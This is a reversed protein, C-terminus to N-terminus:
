NGFILGTLMSTISTMMEEVYPKIMNTININITKEGTVTFFYLYSASAETEIVMIVDEGALIEKITEEEPVWDITHIFSTPSAEGAEISTGAITGSFVEEGYITATYTVERITLPIASPNYLELSGEVEFQLRNNM